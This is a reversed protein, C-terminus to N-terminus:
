VFTHTNKFGIKNYDFISNSNVYMYMLPLVKEGTDVITGNYIAATSELLNINM